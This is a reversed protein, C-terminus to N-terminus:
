KGAIWITQFNQEYQAALTQGYLIILNENNSNEAANSWNFSGTLVIKGDVIGVKDHMLASNTDNRVQVGLNRLRMYESYQSIEQKEFVIRVDVGRQYARAVADGISDETFSYIFVHITTNARDIWNIVQNECGGNPSFYVGLVTANNYKRTLDAVQSQLSAIQSDKAM